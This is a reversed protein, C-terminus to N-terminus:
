IGADQYANELLEFLDLRIAWQKLYDRELSITQVKMIGVIDLWQRESVKGDAEYWQLKNLIVDEPSSFYFRRVADGDEFADKRKRRLVERQFPEGKYVFVDIKIMTELHVLNFSSKERVAESVVNEDFYYKDGLAAKLRVIHEANIDAVLDVDATTRAFGYLSSAISGGIYYPISLKEFAETVPTLAELIDPNKM